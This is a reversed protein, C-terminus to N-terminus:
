RNRSRKSSRRQRLIETSTDISPSSISTTTTTTTRTRKEGRGQTTISYHKQQKKQQQELSRILINTPDNRIIQDPPPETQHDCIYAPIEHPASCSLTQTTLPTVDDDDICHSSSSSPTTQSFLGKSPLNSLLPGVCNKQKACSSSERM